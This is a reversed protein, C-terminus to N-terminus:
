QQATLALADGTRAPQPGGQTDREPVPSAGEGGQTNPDRGAEGREEPNDSLQLNKQGNQAIISPVGEIFADTLDFPSDILENIVEVIWKAPVGPVQLLFPAVREFSALDQDKNPRGSSGAKVDLFIEKATDSATLTPWAAGPGVIEFVQDQSMESLLIQGGARSVESLFDDIDDVNSSQASMRSSRAVGVEFATDGSTGGIDAEQTGNVRQVDDFVFSTEYLNPDINALEMPALIDRAKQGPVVSALEIIEHATTGQLKDKDEDELEVLSIYKPRNARRHERLAERARNYELQQSRMLRVDSPPIKEFEHELENFILPFHLYFREISVNPGAPEQLYDPHGDVLWYVQGTAREFLEFAVLELSGVADGSAGRRALRSASTMESGDNSNYATFTDGLDVGFKTEVERKTFSHEEALWGTGVLGKLHSTMPDFIVKDSRPFLFVPGERLILDKETQLQELTQNLEELIASGDDIEDDKARALLMNVNEIRSVFDTIKRETEQSRGMERQFGVRLWGVGTTITRRVLQKMQAKFGPEQEAMFYDFLVVLTEAVKDLMKRRQVGQQYDQLLEMVDPPPMMGVMQAQQLIMQAQQITQVNGDWITFEMRKRRKAIAKPNKAYLDGTKKQVHRQVINAIYKTSNDDTPKGTFQRGYAFEEDERMRKFPGKHLLARAKKIMQLQQKVRAARAEPPEPTDRVVGSPGDTGQRTQDEEGDILTM